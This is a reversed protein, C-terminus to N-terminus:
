RWPTDYAQLFSTCFTVDGTVGIADPAALRPRKCTAPHPGPNWPAAPIITFDVGANKFVLNGIAQAAQTARCPRARHRGHRVEQGRDGEAHAALAGLTGPYGGTIQFVGATSLEEASSGSVAVIPIGAATIIPVSSGQGTFPWVVASVKKEVFQNACDQAGAPTSKNGCVFLEIPHGAIGGLYDNAYQVAIKAGSEALAAQSGIAASGGETMM